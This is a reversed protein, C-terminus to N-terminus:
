RTPRNRRERRRFRAVSRWGGSSTTRWSIGRTGPHPGWRGRRGCIRQVQYIGKAADDIHFRVPNGLAGKESVRELAVRLQLVGAKVGQDEEGMIIVDHTTPDVAIGSPELLAHGQVESGTELTASSAFVGEKDETTGGSVASELKKGVQETKFAYLTEAARTAPDISAAESRYSIALVYIRKLSPDVAIGELGAPTVPKFSVSALFEGTASFKQIRYEGVTPEDGVFVSNDTPDVGFAHTGTTIEFQGDGTGAGLGFHGLEGYSEGRAAAGMAGLLLMAGAFAPLLRRRLSPTRSM